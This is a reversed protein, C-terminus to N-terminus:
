RFLCLKYKQLQLAICLQQGSHKLPPITGRDHFSNRREHFPTCINSGLYQCYTLNMKALFIINSFTITDIFHLLIYM